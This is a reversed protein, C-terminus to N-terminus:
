QIIINKIETKIRLKEFSVIKNLEHLDNKSDCNTRTEQSMRLEGLFQCFDVSIM